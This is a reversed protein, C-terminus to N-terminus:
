PFEAVSLIKHEPQHIRIESVGEHLHLRRYLISWAKETVYKLLNHTLLELEVRVRLIDDVNPFLIM